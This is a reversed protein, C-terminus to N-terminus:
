IWELAKEIWEIAAQDKDAVMLNVAHNCMLGASNPLRTIAELSYTLAREVDGADMAAISAERAVDSNAKEQHLAEEFLQLDKAHENITQYVKGLMWKTQWHHPLLDM